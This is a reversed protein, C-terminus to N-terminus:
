SLNKSVRAYIKDQLDYMQKAKRGGNEHDYGLLHLIGHLILYGLEFNFTLGHEKARKKLVAPCIVLEPMANNAFSGFSLIDTVCDKDRFKKNLGRMTVPSVFLITLESLILGRTDKPKLNKKILHIWVEVFKKPISIKTKNVYNLQM